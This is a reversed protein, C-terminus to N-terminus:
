TTGWDTFMIDIYIDDAILHVVAQRGVMSPPVKGNWEVWSSFRLNAVDATTGYAWETGAPSGNSYGAEAAANYIGMTDRRTIWVDPMIRDQNAPQSPDAGGAKSFTIQPGTWITAADAALNLIWLGLAFFIATVAHTTSKTM